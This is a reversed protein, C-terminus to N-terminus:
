PITVFPQNKVAAAWGYLAENVKGWSPLKERNALWDLVRVPTPAPVTMGAKLQKLDAKGGFASMAGNDGQKLALLGFAVTLPASGCCFLM